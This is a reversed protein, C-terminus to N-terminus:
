PLSSKISKVQSVQSSGRQFLSFQDTQRDIQDTQRDTQGAIQRDTQIYTQKLHQMTHNNKTKRYKSNRYICYTTSTTPLFPPSPDLHFSPYFLNHLRNTVKISLIVQIVYLHFHFNLPKLYTSFIMANSMYMSMSLFPPLINVPLVYERVCMLDDCYTRSQHAEDSGRKNM